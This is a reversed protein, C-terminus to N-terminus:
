KRSTLRSIWYGIEYLIVIPLAVLTQNISDFTPTIFAGLIFSIVIFWKRFRAFTEIPVIRLKSLLFVVTPVQFVIGMWFMLSIVLQIYSGIRILPVALDGGFLVLFKIAPPVLIFYGFTAGIYFSIVMLPLFIYVYKKENEKLGPIIFIMIQYAIFPISLIVGTLISVRMVVSWFETINTFVPQGGTFENIGFSQNLLLAIIWRHFIFGLITFLSLLSISFIIRKKLELFHGKFSLNNIKRDKNLDNSSAKDIDSNIIKDRKKIMKKIM